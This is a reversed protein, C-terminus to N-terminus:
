TEEKPPEPLPMWYLPDTHRHRAIKYEDSDAVWRDGIRYAIETYTSPPVQGKVGLFKRVVFVSEEEEPLREEVSIWRPTCAKAAAEEARIAFDLDRKLEEIADTTENLLLTSEADKLGMFDAKQIHYRVRAVLAEYM